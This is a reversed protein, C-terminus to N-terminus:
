SAAFAPPSYMIVKLVLAANISGTLAKTSPKKGQMGGADLRGVLSSDVRHLEKRRFARAWRRDLYDAREVAM